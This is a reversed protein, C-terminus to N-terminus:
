SLHLVKQWSITSADERLHANFMAGLLHSLLLTTLLQRSHPKILLLNDAMLMKSTCTPTSQLISDPSEGNSSSQSLLIVTLRPKSYLM